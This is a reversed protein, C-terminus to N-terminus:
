KRAAPKVKLILRETGGRVIEIEYETDAKLEGLVFTYDQVNRIEKEPSNQCNKDGRKLDPSPPSALRRPRRRSGNRRDFRRLGPVVGITVNFQTRGGQGSTPAVKYTPKQRIRTLRAPLKASM